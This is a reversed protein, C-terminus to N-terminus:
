STKEQRLWRWIAVLQKQRMNLVLIMRFALGALLFSSNFIIQWDCWIFRFHSECERPNGQFILKGFL